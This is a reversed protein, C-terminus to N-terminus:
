FFITARIGAEAQGFDRIPCPNDWLPALTDGRGPFSVWHDRRRAPTPEFKSALRSSCPLLWFKGGKGPWFVLHYRRANPRPSYASTTPANRRLQAQIQAGEAISVPPGEHGGRM